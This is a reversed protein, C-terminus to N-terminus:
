RISRMRETLKKRSKQGTKRPPDAKIETDSFIGKIIADENVAHQIALRVAKDKTPGRNSNIAVARTALPPSIRATYRRDRCFRDFTDLSIQGDGYVLDIEGTEFAMARTNPDPIVKVLLSDM